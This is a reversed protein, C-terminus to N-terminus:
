ASTVRLRGSSEGPLRIDLVGDEASQVDVPNGNWTVKYSGGAKMCALLSHTRDAAGFYRIEATLESNDVSFEKHELWVDYGCTLTGPRHYAAFWSLVPASLGGFHHWGAGRGSQVIFHEYCNYTEGTETKWLELATRAIRHAPESYGLSLLMKWYFWQHPMWVAGNWYGDKKYYAASQDVATLGIPSWLRSSDSIYGLLRREQEPNCIGAVLPYAGDLGMNYNQGSEHRLLGNPQGKTDHMIYGFYGSEEDWAYDQIAKGFLAIDGEYEAVDEELGGIAAAAMKLIKAIRIAHSTNSVPAAEATLRSRHVEVQPAYDDWGGSNYFYDWTKLLGSSLVRTTSSGLKGAYFLYYQRLRPYFYNLLEKSQTKNWIELFLYHQVPVMSGHHIFAAHPDGPETVYANLCELAREMDLEALGIGIFGSDWTYLSDWWRGPTSHRIYSRKTYVPYVINTALTAEMLQQSLRYPEGSPNYTKKMAQLSKEKLSAFVTECRKPDILSSSLQREVEDKSGSCVMGHILKSSHPALPIPRLYVNTFHGRGEGKFVSSTHHHVNHRMFRDLEDCHFERVEYDEYAWLLGYYHDIGEYKLLLSNPVPGQIIQPHAEDSEPIFRVQDLRNQEAIVFGDFEASVTFANGRSYSSSGGANNNGVNSGEGATFILEYHGAELAGLSVSAEALEGTGTLEISADIMGGLRISLHQGEKMRFRLLLVAQELPKAAVVTYSVRDGPERGFRLASGGVLGQGRAEGRFFGDYVLNDSPQPTAYSLAAYDLANTWLAGEPLEPRVTRLLEGHGRVQPFHMSAMYHLVVNQEAETRNVFECRVLRANESMEAYTIDTYVQDKWELEHRHTFWSLDPSAEWPHYGSEWMVNPVDVKRRYFGPFVSLDFRLGRDADAIHSIGIYKKTYPGWLPLQKLDHTGVLHEM